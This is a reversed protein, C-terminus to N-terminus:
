KTTKTASTSQSLKKEKRNILDYAIPIAVFVTSYVGVLVGVILAFSFGRITEGGFIFIALLVIVVTMSTNITRMITSNIADNILTFWDRKPFLQKNERIRDFIVVTDNISYGIITLIAAIFQQDVDMTWPFIGAGISFISITLLTDHALSVVGGFGWEWRAFRLAIYIFIALLSFIVAIIANRKMDDAISPGVKESSIIGNPNTDTSNFEEYSLTKKFLGGLSAYLKESAEKDIDEGEENIRYKTTIKVQSTPGFQKVEASEDFSTMAARVQDVEVPSDFRVVYTRGGTFDIGYSMGKTFIFTLGIACAIISVVYAKKRAGLFNIKTSDLFNFTLKNGFSINKNKDLLWEFVLRSVFISTALSTLIGIVLTTAFGQVPGSGFIMLVIGTILTTLQGDIIASMAHKYGETISVRLSKGLRLEEKIREYIIVNADVAMGMTLVIGAIGPMTLVAGFSTLVGFLLLLNSLLAVNAAFGGTGYYFWMYALVLLFALAFSLFGANISEQGLSPGVVAEQVIRAPAPMKGSKLVNALDEAENVTFGGSIQSRGGSIENHVTPASYVYDDLVIAISRGINDATLRAWVKAGEANMGMDVQIEQNNFSRRADTIVSGDLPAKGDRTNAKIAILNYYTEAKDVPKITWKPKFERPFLKSVQPLNLWKNIMGTDTVLATGIVPGSAIQGQKNIMPQLKSLLPNNDIMALSDNTKAALQALLSDNGLSDTAVTKPQVNVATSDVTKLKGKEEDLMQKIVANAEQLAPMLESAEYTSWFELNATGQLLKRVREPEKVGPLEVLIRGSNGLRQINPSAVGFRDIRNRLVNFSNAVASESDERIVKLVDSNSSEPKIRERLEYTGFIASLKRNPAVQEWAQGFLTVFDSGSTKQNQAALSMAKLFSSDTSNGSMAKLIDPLSVELTVNMGGKLDLGLSLEKDKVEKYTFGLFVKESQKKRLYDAEKQLDGQAVEKANREIRWTVFTFSLQYICALLFLVVILKIAGKGQM